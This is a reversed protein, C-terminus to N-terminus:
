GSTSSDYDNCCQSLLSFICRPFTTHTPKLLWHSSPKDVFTMMSLFTKDYDYAVDKNSTDYFATEPEIQQKSSMLYLIRGVGAHDFILNDEEIPFMAHSASLKIANGVLQQQMQAKLRGKEQRRQHELLNSRSIPPVSEVNM